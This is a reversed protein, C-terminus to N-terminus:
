KNLEVQLQEFFLGAHYGDAFGHHMELSVPMQNDIIKGVSVRPVSQGKEFSTAHSLSSFHIWPLASFHLVDVRSANETLNIGKTSQVYHMEQELARNFITSDEDFEVFSFGFSRDKRFTTPSVNIKDFCVIEENLIRMQFAPIKNIASLIAHLYYSYFSQNLKKAKSKAKQTNVTTAIGWYPNELSNFFEFHEKREWSEIDVKTYM